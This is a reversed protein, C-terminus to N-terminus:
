KTMDTKNMLSSAWPPLPWHDEAEVKSLLTPPHPYQEPVSCVGKHFAPGKAVWNGVVNSSPFTFLFHAKLYKTLATYVLIPTHPSTMDTCHKRASYKRQFFSPTSFGSPELYIYLTRRNKNEKNQKAKTLMYKDVLSFSFLVAALYPELLFLMKTKKLGMLKSYACDQPLHWLSDPPLCDKQSGSWVDM